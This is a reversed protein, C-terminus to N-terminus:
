LGIQTGGAQKAEMAKKLIPASRPDDPNSQAWKIAATHIDGADGLRTSIEKGHPSLLPAGTGGGAGDRQYEMADQRSRLLEDIKGAAGIFQQPTLDTNLYDRWHSIEQDTAGTNKFVNALEGQLANLNIGLAIVNPDNTEKKLKNIPTNLWKQDTNGIAQYSDYASSLHGLATNLSLANQGMKGSTSFKAMAANTDASFASFKPLGNINAYEEALASIKSRERFGIDGSRVRGEYRAKALAQEQPTASAWDTGAGSQSTIIQDGKKKTGVQVLGKGPTYQFVGEPKNAEAMRMIMKQVAPSIQRPAPEVTAAAQIPPAQIPVAMSGTTAPTLGGGNMTPDPIPTGSVQSALIAGAQHASSPSADPFSAPQAGSTAPQATPKPLGYAKRMIDLFADQDEYGKKLKAAELVQSPEMTRALEPDVGTLKGLALAQAVRQKQDHLSKAVGGIATLSDNLMQSQKLTTENELQGKRQAANIVDAVPFNNQMRFDPM